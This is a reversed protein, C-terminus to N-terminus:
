ETCSEFLLQKEFKKIGCNIICGFVCLWLDVFICVSHAKKKKKLYSVIFLDWFVIFHCFPVEKVLSLKTKVVKVPWFFIFKYYLGFATRQKFVLIM